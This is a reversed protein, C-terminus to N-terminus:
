LDYLVEKFTSLTLLCDKCATAHCQATSFLKSSTVLQRANGPNQPTHPKSAQEM